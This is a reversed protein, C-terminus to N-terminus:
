KRKGINYQLGLVTHSFKANISNYVYLNTTRKKSISISNQISIGILHFPNKIIEYNNIIFHKPPYYSKNVYYHYGLGFETRWNLKPILKWSYVARISLTHIPEVNTPNLNDLGSFLGFSEFDKPKEKSTAFGFRYNYSIGWQENIAKNFSIGLEFPKILFPVISHHFSFHRYSKADNEQGWGSASFSIIILILSFIRNM